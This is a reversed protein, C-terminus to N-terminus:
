PPLSTEQNRETNGNVNDRATHSGREKTVLVYERRNTGVHLSSVESKARMGSDEEGYDKGENKGHIGGRRLNTGNCTHVVQECGRGCFRGYRAVMFARVQREAGFIPKDKTYYINNSVKRRYEIILRVPM